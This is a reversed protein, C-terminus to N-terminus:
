TNGTVRERLITTRRSTVRADLAKIKERIAKARAILMDEDKLRRKRDEVSEEGRTRTRPPRTRAAESARWITPADEDEGAGRRRYSDRRTLGETRMTEDMVMSDNREVTKERRRVGRGNSAVRRARRRRRARARRDRARDSGDDVEGDIAGTEVGRVAGISSCANSGRGRAISTTRVRPARTSASSDDLIGEVRIARSDRSRLVERERVETRSRRGHAISAIYFVNGARVRALGRADARADAPNSTRPVRSDTIEVVLVNERTM